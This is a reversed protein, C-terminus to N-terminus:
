WRVRACRWVPVRSSAALFAARGPRLLQPSYSGTMVTLFSDVSSPEFKGLLSRRRRPQVCPIYRWWGFCCVDCGLHSHTSSKGSQKGFNATGVLTPPRWHEATHMAWQVANPGTLMPEVEVAADDTARLHVRM